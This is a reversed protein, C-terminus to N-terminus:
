DISDESEVRAGLADSAVVFALTDREDGHTSISRFM